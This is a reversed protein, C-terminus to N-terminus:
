GLAEVLQQAAAVKGLAEGRSAQVASRVREAETRIKELDAEESRGAALQRGLGDLTAKWDNLLDALARPPPPDTQAPLSLPTGLGILLLVIALVRLAGRARQPCPNPRFM